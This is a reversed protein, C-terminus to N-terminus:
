KFGYYHKNLFGAIDREDAPSLPQELRSVCLAVQRVLADPSKIHRDRRTYIDSGDIGGFQQAHCTACHKAHLARGAEVDAGAFPEACAAGSFLLASVAIRRATARLRDM